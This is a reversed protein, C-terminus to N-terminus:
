HANKVDGTMKCAGRDMRVVKSVDTGYPLDGIKRMCIGDRNEKVGKHADLSGDPALPTGGPPSRECKEYCPDARGSRGEKANTHRHIDDNGRM